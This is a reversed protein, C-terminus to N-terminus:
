SVRVQPALRIFRVWNRSHKRLALADALKLIEDDGLSTQDGSEIREIWTATFGSEACFRDLTPHCLLRLNQVIKGFSM